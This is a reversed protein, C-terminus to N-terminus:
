RNKREDECGFAIQSCTAVAVTRRSHPVCRLLKPSTEETTNEKEEGSQAGECKRGRKM